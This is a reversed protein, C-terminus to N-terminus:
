AFTKVKVNRLKFKYYIEYIISCILISIFVGEYPSIVLSLLVALIGIVLGYILKPIKSIPSSISDPAVLIIALINSGNLFLSKDFILSLFLYGILASITIEFKYNNTIALIIMVIIGLIISTSGLGGINRGWLLDWTTLSYIELEEAYNLYSYYTFIALLLIIFLKSFAISNFNFRKSLFEIIILSLFVGLFYFFYNISIPMFLPIIFLSLFELDLHIKRKLIITKALYAILSIFLLYIIKFIDFFPILNKQYLLIGNKYIGYIYLPILLIIYNIVNKKLSNKSHIFVEM